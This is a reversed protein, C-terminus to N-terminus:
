NKQSDTEGEGRQGALEVLRPVGLFCPSHEPGLTDQYEM